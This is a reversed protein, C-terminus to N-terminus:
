GDTLRRRRAAGGGEWPLLSIVIVGCATGGVAGTRIM